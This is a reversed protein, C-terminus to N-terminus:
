ILSAPSGGYTAYVQICLLPCMDDGGEGEESSPSPSPLFPLLRVDRPPPLDDDPPEDASQM